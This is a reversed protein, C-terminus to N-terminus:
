LRAFLCSRFFLKGLTVAPIGPSTPSLGLGVSDLSGAGTWAPRSQLVLLGCLSTVSTSAPLNALGRPCPPNLPLRSTSSSWRRQSEGPLARLCDLVCTARSKMASASLSPRVLIALPLCAQVWAEPARPDRSPLPFPNSPHSDGHGLDDAARGEVQAFIM